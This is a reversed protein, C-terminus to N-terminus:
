LIFMRVKRDRWACLFAYELLGYCWVNNLSYNYCIAYRGFHQWIEHFFFLLRSLIARSKLWSSKHCMRFFFIQIFVNQLRCFFINKFLFIVSDPRLHIPKSNFPTACALNKYCHTLSLIHDFDDAISVVMSLSCTRTTCVRVDNKSVEDNWFLSHLLGVHWISISPIIACAHYLM